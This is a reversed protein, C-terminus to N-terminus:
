LPYLLIWQNLISPHPPHIATCTSSSPQCIPLRANNAGLRGPYTAYMGLWIAVSRM